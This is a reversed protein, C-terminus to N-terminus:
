AQVGEADLGALVRSAHAFSRMAPGRSPEPVEGVRLAAILERIRGTSVNDHNAFDIQVAPAFDCVGLCEEEHLTIVGDDSVEQGHTLGAAERAAEYVEKGGRLMCALNTCVNVLHEGTPRLRYMTYFSAVAEVEATTIGLLEAVDRLGQRSILGEVSQALYLLPMIASRERGAPYRAVITRAEDMVAGEFVAM